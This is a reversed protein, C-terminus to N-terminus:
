EAAEEPGKRIKDSLIFIWVSFLLVYILGFLALSGGAQATTLTQSVAEETRLLNYVIWPQRGVEAAVWGTQNAIFPLPVSFVFLWLLWRAQFLTKRWM